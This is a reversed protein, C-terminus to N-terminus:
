LDLVLICLLDVDRHMSWIPCYAVWGGKVKLSSSIDLDVLVRADTPVDWGSTLSTPTPIWGKERRSEGTEWSRDGMVWIGNGKERRGEGM